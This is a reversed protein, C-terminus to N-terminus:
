LRHREERVKVRQWQRQQRWLEPGMTERDDFSDLGLKQRDMGRGSHMLQRCFLGCNGEGLVERGQGGQVAGGM